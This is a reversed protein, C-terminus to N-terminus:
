ATTEPEPHIELLDDSSVEWPLHHDELVVINREEIVAPLSAHDILLDAGNEPDRSTMYIESASLSTLGRAIEEGDINYLHVIDARNFEGQIAHIDSVLIRKRGSMLAKEGEETLTLSGAVQLRNTLWLKWSSETVEPAICTTHRRKDDLVSTIPADVVGEAIITHCGAMQAMNAAQMKTFMGGTGLENTEKTCELYSSVDEVKHIFQADPDSPNRDYLGDVSTLIVLYEAHFMQALQASLRDNDGVRMDQIAVTDNENVIPTIGAEFLRNITSQISLFRRRGQMDDLTVLIQALDLNHESGIQRYANMLLQQGCAAAARKDTAEAMEPLVNISSLGLAVSGSSAIVVNYGRSKLEQVDSLLGHIFGFRLTLNETNALLSSGIKIVITKDHKSM